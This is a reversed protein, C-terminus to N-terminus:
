VAQALAWVALSSGVLLFFWRPLGAERRGARYWFVAATAALVLQLLDSAHEARAQPLAHLLLLALLVAASWLLWPTRRDRTDAPTAGMQHGALPRRGAPSAARPLPM